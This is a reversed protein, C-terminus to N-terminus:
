RELAKYPGTPAMSVNTSSHEKSHEGYKIGKNKAHEWRKGRPQLRGHVLCPLGLVDIFKFSAEPFIPVFQASNDAARVSRPSQLGV